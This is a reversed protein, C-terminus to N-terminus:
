TFPCMHFFSGIHCCDVYFNKPKLTSVASFITVYLYATDGMFGEDISALESIM